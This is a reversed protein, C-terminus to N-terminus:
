VTGVIVLEDPYMSGPIEGMVNWIPTVNYHVHNLLHVPSLSPGTWYEM